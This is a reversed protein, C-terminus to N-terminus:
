ARNEGKSIAAIASQIMSGAAWIREGFPGRHNTYVSEVTYGYSDLVRNISAAKSGIGKPHKVGLLESVQHANLGGVPDSEKIAQLFKLAQAGDVKPAEDFPLQTTVVPQPQPTHAPATVLPTARTPVSHKVTSSLEQLQRMVAAVEGTPVHLEIGQYFIKTTM